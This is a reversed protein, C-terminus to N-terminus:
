VGGEFDGEGASLMGGCLPSGQGALSKRGTEHVCLSRYFVTEASFVPKKGSEGGSEGM